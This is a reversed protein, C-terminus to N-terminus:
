ARCRLSAASTEEAPRREPLICCCARERCIIQIARPNNITVTATTAILVAFPLHDIAYRRTGRQSATLTGPPASPPFSGGGVYANGAADVTVSDAGGNGDLYTSYVLSSGDPSLKTLFGGSYDRCEAGTTPKRAIYAGPTTPFDNTTTFGVVHLKRVRAGSAGSTAWGILARRPSPVVPDPGGLPGKTLLSEVAGRGVAVM